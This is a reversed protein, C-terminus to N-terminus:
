QFTILSEDPSSFVDMQLTSSMGLHINVICRPYVMVMSYLMTINGVIAQHSWHMSDLRHCHLPAAPPQLRVSSLHSQSEGGGEDEDEDEDEDATCRPAAVQSFVSSILIRRWGSRINLLIKVVTMMSNKCYLQCLHLHLSPRLYLASQTWVWTGCFSQLRTSRHIWGVEDWIWVGLGVFLQSRLVQGLCGTGFCIVGGKKRTEERNAFNIKTGSTFTSLALAVHFERKTWQDKQRQRQASMVRILHRFDSQTDLNERLSFVNKVCVRSRWSLHRPSPVLYRAAPNFQCCNTNLTSLTWFPVRLPRRHSRSKAEPPPARTGTFVPDPRPLPRRVNQSLFSSM